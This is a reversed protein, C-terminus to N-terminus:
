LLSLRPMFVWIPRKMRRTVHDLPREKKLSLHQGEIAEVVKEPSFFPLPLGWVFYFNFPFKGMNKFGLKMKPLLESLMFPLAIHIM